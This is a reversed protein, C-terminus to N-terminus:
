SADFGWYEDYKKIATEHTQINYQNAVDDWDREYTRSQNTCYCGADFVVWTFCSSFHYGCRYDCMSCSHFQWERINNKIAAQKFEEGTRM